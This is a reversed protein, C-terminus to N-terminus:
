VFFMLSYQITNYHNFFLSLSFLLNLDNPTMSAFNKFITNMQVESRGPIKSHNILKISLSRIVLSFLSLEPSITIYIDLVKILVILQMSFTAIMDYSRGKIKRTSWNDVECGDKKIAPDSVPTTSM